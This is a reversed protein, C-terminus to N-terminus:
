LYFKMRILYPRRPKEELPNYINTELTENRFNPLGPKTNELYAETFYSEILYFKWDRTVGLNVFDNYSLLSTTTM